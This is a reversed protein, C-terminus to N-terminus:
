ADCKARADGRHVDRADEGGLADGGGDGEEAAGKEAGGELLVVPRGGVKADEADREM